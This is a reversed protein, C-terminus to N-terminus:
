GYFPRIMLYIIPGTVAVYLWLPFTYKALKRHAELNNAWGKLYTLMVMPIVAISLIIHTVLIFYYVLASKGLNLREADSLVGDHNVDGYKTDGSTSHYLIYGVLFLISGLIALRILLRHRKQNKNKIAIVALVLLVAVSGNILSYIPPLFSFDYGPIKIMFLAAVALPIVVSLAIVLKKHKQEITNNEM